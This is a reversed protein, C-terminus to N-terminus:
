GNARIRFQGWLNFPITTGAADKALVLKIVDNEKMPSIRKMAERSVFCKFPSGSNGPNVYTWGKAMTNKRIEREGQTDNNNHFTSVLSTISIDNDPSKYLMWRVYSATSAQFHGQLRLGTIRSYLPCDAVASGDSEAEEDQAETCELLSISLVNDYNVSTIDPITASDVLVRKVLSIGTAAKIIPRAM